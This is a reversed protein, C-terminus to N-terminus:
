AACRLVACVSVRTHVMQKPGQGATFAFLPGDDAQDQAEEIKEEQEAEAAPAPSVKGGRGGPEPLPALQRMCRAVAPPLPAGAPSAYLLGAAGKGGALGLAANLFAAAHPEFLPNMIAAKLRAYRVPVKEDGGYGSSVAAAVAPEGVVAVAVLQGQAEAVVAGGRAQALVIREFLGPGDPLGSVLASLGAADEPTALRAEFAGLAETARHAILVVDPLAAAAASAPGGAPSLHTVARRLLAAPAAAAHPLAIAAYDAGPIAAFAAALLARVAADEAVGDAGDVCLMTVALLRHRAAAAASASPPRRMGGSSGGCGALAAQALDALRARVAEGGGDLDGSGGALQEKEEVTGGGAKGRAVQVQAQAQAELREFVDPDLFGDFPDLDCSRLLLPVDADGATVALLGCIAPACGGGGSGGGSGDGGCREAVLVANKTADQAGILRALAFQEGPRCSEPLRALPPCRDACRQLLAAIDDHDGAQARRVSVSPQM